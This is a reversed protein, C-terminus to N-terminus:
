QQPTVTVGPGLPIFTLYWDIVGTTGGGSDLLEIMGVPSFWPLMPNASGADNGIALITPVSPAAASFVLRGGDVATDIDVATSFEFDQDAHDMIISITCAAGIDTTVYGTLNTILIPGGAVSFLDDDTAAPMHMTVVYTQGPVLGIPIAGSSSETENYTNGFLFCDAAVISLEPTGVNCAIQNDNITGSTSAHLEIAPETNLGASGAIVGNFLINDKILVRDAAASNEICAVARDGYIENGIIHIDNVDAFNIASQPEANTEQTGLFRCNKIVGGHSAAGSALIVDDFEDVSDDEVSFECNEITWNLCAAEVQIATVVSDVSAVFRFNKITSNDGDAGFLCTDAGTDYTITPRQDGNGLGIITIGPTDIDLGGTTATEAHGAAVLIVDGTNDSCDEIAEDVTDHATAWTLGDETTSIEGSDVYVIKGASGSGLLGLADNALNQLFELRELESGDAVEGVDSTEASMPIPTEGENIADTAVNGICIASGPDLITVGNAGYTDAYLRNGIIHGTAAGAFEICLDGSNLNSFINDKILINTPVAAGGWVVAEAFDSFVTCGIVSAGDVTVADLNVFTDADGGTVNANEYTCKRVMTDTTATNYVIGDIFEDGSAEGTIFAVDEILCGDGNAGLVIGAVVETAGPMLRFNKFTIGAANLTVEDTSVDFDLRPRADGVGMGVVTVGAVDVVLSGIAENHSRGVYIVQGPVAIAEAAAITTKATQWSRGEGNSGGDDVYLVPVNIASSGALTTTYENLNETKVLAVYDGATLAATWAATTFTGTATAYDTIDRVEGSPLTGVAGATDFICVLSWGENFVDDGYGGLSGAIVETTGGTNTEVLGVMGYGTLADIASAITTITTTNLQNIGSDPRLAIQGSADTATNIYNEFCTLSGPDLTTAEANTYMINYACVGTAAGTTFEICHADAEINTIINGLIYVETDTDNSWIASVVFDGYIVNNVIKVGVLAANGLDIFHNPAAGAPDNQYNCEAITIYTVGSAVDIADLFEWSNTTPKPFVCGLLTFHDGADEVSIGMTVDTVGCVFRVNMVTINAAGIVFEDGAADYTFEPMDVGTGLGIVTIGAVDLDAGDAGALAETHGQAIYIVDGNNDTCLAVAENLTAVANLWSSGDGANAVDSDVYFVSGTGANFGARGEMGEAWQKLTNSPLNSYTGQDWWRIDFASTFALCQGCMLLLAAILFTLKTKM